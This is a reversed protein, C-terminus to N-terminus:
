HEISLFLHVFRQLYATGASALFLFTLTTALGLPITSILSLLVTLPKFPPSTVIVILATAAGVTLFSILNVTLPSSITGSTILGSLKTILPLVSTSSPFVVAKDTEASGSPALFSAVHSLLSGEIAVTLLPTTLPIAKPLTVIVAVDVNTGVTLAVYSIM